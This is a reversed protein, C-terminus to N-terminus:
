SLLNLLAKRYLLKIPYRNDITPNSMKMKLIRGWGQLIACGSIPYTPKETDWKLHHEICQRFKPINCYTFPLAVSSSQVLPNKPSWLPNNKWMCRHKPLIRFMLTYWTAIGSMFVQQIASSEKARGRQIILQSHARRPKALIGTCMANLWKVRM